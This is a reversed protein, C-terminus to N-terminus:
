FPYIDKFFRFRNGFEVYWCLAFIVFSGSAAKEFGPCKRGGQRVSMYNLLKTVELWIDAIDHVFLVLLGIKHYRYILLFSEFFRTKKNEGHPM